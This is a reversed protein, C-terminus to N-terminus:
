SLQVCGGCVVVVCTDVFCCAGSRVQVIAGGIKPDLVGQAMNVKAAARKLVGFARVVPEPM